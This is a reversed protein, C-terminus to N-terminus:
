STIHAKPVALAFITLVGQLVLALGIILAYGEFHAAKLNSVVASMGLVAICGGGVMLLVQGRGQGHFILFLITCFSQCALLVAIAIRFGSGPHSLVVEMVALWITAALTFFCMFLLVSKM